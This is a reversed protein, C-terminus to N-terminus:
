EEDLYEDLEEALAREEEFDYFEGDDVEFGGSESRPGEGAGSMSDSSSGHGPLSGSQKVLLLQGLNQEKQSTWSQVERALTQGFDADALKQNVNELAVDDEFLLGSESYMRNKTDSYARARQMFKQVLPDDVMNCGLHQQLPAYALLRRREQNLRSAVDGALRQAASAIRSHNVAVSGYLFMKHVFMKHVVKLATDMYRTRLQKLLRLVAQLEELSLYIKIRPEFVQTEYLIYLVYVAGLQFCMSEERSIHILASSYLCQLFYAPLVDKPRADHIFSFSRATWLDKMESLKSGDTAAFAAVLEDIDLACAALLQDM